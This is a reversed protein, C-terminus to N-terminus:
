YLDILIREVLSNSIEMYNRMTLATNKDITETLSNKSFLSGYGGAKIKEFKTLHKIQQPFINWEQSANYKENHEKFNEIAQELLLVDMEQNSNFDSMIGGIIKIDTKKHIKYANQLKEKLISFIMGVGEVAKDEPRYSLLFYDTAMTISTLANMDNPPTDIVVFDYKDKVSELVMDLAKYETGYIKLKESISHFNEQNEEDGANPILDFKGLTKVKDQLSIISEEVIEKEAGKGVELILDIISKKFDVNPRYDFRQSANSQTDFDVFLVDFGLFSLVTAINISNTTKAAGGSRNVFSIVKAKKGIQERLEEKLEETEKLCYPILNTKKNKQAQILNSILGDNIKKQLLTENIDNASSYIDKPVFPYKALIYKEVISNYESKDDKNKKARIAGESKLDMFDALEKSSPNKYSILIPNNQSM